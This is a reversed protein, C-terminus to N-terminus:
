TGAQKIRWAEGSAAMDPDVLEFPHGTAADDDGGRVSVLSM